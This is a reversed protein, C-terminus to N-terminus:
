KGFRPQKLKRAEKIKVRDFFCRGDIEVTPQLKGQLRWRDLTTVAIPVERAFAHKCLMNDYKTTM